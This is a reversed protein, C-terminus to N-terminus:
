DIISKLLRNIYGMSSDNLIIVDFYKKFLPSKAKVDDNLFGIKILNDYDFGTVMYLDHINDGLLIVNTRSKIKKIIAPFNKVMTEAKNASTIIPQNYAIARGTKDWVFSNSIIHINNSHNAGNKIEKLYLKISERGLGSASM